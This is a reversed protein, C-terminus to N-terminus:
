FAFRIGTFPEFRRQVLYQQIGDEDTGVQEFSYRARLFAWFPGALRYDTGFVLATQDGLDNFLSFFGRLGGRDLGAEVRLRNPRHLYLRLHYESLRQTGYHRRFYYWLEFREFILIRLETEFDNGGLADDLAIGEYNVVDRVLYDHANLIRVRPNSVQYFSGVYGPIFKKGNYYLTLKLRFRALDIFNDSEVVAGFALGSGYEPYWAYSTFPVLRIDGPSLVNVSVDTNYGTLGLTEATRTHLDTVYSFGITLSRLLPDRGWALPRIGARGGVVGDLLVNDTFGSLELPRFAYIMEIGVTRDDWAARSNYFNVLHGTGLRMRQILGARLYLPSRPGTTPRIFDILRILDYTEDTDPGYEGYIGGRVSGELRATLRPTALALQGAVGARWHDSILSLGASLDLSSQYRWWVPQLEERPDDSSGFDVPQASSTMAIAAAVITVGLTVFGFRHVM